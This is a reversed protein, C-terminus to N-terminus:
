ADHTPGSMPYFDRSFTKPRPAAADRKPQVFTPGLVIVDDVQMAWSAIGFMM